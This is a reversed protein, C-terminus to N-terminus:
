MPFCAVLGAIDQWIEQLAPRQSTEDVATIKSLWGLLHKGPDTFDIESLKEFAFYNVRLGQYSSAAPLHAPM